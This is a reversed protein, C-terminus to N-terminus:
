EIGGANQVNLITLCVLTVTQNSEREGRGVEKKKKKKKKITQVDLSCIASERENKRM